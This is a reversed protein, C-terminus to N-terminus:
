RGLQYVLVLRGNTPNGSSQEAYVAALWEGADLFTYSTDLTFQKPVSDAWPDATGGTAAAITGNVAPTGANSFRQLSLSFSTGSTTAAHNVFYADLLTLGGGFTDTPAKLVLFTDPGAPDPFAVSLINVDIAM